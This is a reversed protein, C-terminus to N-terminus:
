HTSRNALQTSLFDPIRQELWYQPRWPTGCVFGVHGGTASLELRVAESLADPGPIAEPYLFPDDRAHVILTPVVVDRLYQGCSAEAYYHDVNRFGHLPATVADDFSRFTRQKMITAVPIPSDMAKLKAYVRRKMTRVLLWQYFRSAGSNLRQAAIALDFPVSVACAAQLPTDAGEEGLYKLLANGGLSYGVAALPRNTHREHLTRLLFRIDGTDGSHYGRPLRNAVGSCGRFHMTLTGWGRNHAAAMIGSAYPSSVGGELGHFVVILPGRGADCWALDVFDGDPLELREARLPLTPIARFRSAWITQAHPNRLWAPASFESNIM